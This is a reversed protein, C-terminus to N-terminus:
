RPSLQALVEGLTPVPAPLCDDACEQALESDVLPEQALELRDKLSILVDTAARVCEADRECEIQWGQASALVSSASNFENVQEPGDYTRSLTETTLEVWKKRDAKWSKYDSLDGILGVRGSLARAQDVCTTLLKEAVHRSVQLLEPGAAANACPRSAVIAHRGCASHESRDPKTAFATTGSM